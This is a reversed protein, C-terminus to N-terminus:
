QEEPRAGQTVTRLIQQMASRGSTVSRRQKRSWVTEPRTQLTLVRGDADTAFEGDQPHGAREELLRGCRVLEAVQGEDLCPREVLDAPTEEVAVGRGSRHRVMRTPKAVVSRSAVEGTVKDVVFRDPNVAGQVLPEGLGWVAEIAVKSRDGNAPNLTMFVGAARAPVMHQVVVAMRGETLGAGRRYSIARATYLSAWCQRVRERVEDPGLVWLYTDHEGAFSREVADEGSASSRVAVPPEDVGLEEALRGYARTIDGECPHALTAEVILDRLEVAAAEVEQLPADASVEGTRRTLEAHVTANVAQEFAVTTVVYGAPVAVGADLLRVLGAGKGGVLAADTPAGAEGRAM